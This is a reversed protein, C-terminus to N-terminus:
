SGSVLVVFWGKRVLESCYLDPFVRSHLNKAQM